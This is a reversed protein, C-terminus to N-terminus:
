AMLGLIKERKQQDHTKDAIHGLLTRIAADAPGVRDQADMSASLTRVESM